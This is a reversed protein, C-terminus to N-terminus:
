QACREVWKKIYAATILVVQQLKFQADGHPLLHILIHHASFKLFQQGVSIKLKLMKLIHHFCMM